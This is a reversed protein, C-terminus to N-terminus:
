TPVSTWALVDYERCSKGTDVAGGCGPLPVKRTAEILATFRNAVDTGTGTELTVQRLEKAGPDAVHQVDSCHRPTRTWTWGLEALAKADATQAWPGDLGACGRILGAVASPHLTRTVIGTLTETSLHAWAYGDPFTFATPAYRHGGTHSTRWVRAPSREEIELAQVLRTGESGCCRDRQGHTCVLVDLVEDQASAEPMPLQMARSVAEGLEDQAASLETRRFGDFLGDGRRYLIIRRAEKDSDKRPVLGQIRAGAPLSERMGALLPHQSIDHPWPLPLEILVFAQQADVSGVPAMELARFAPACALGSRQSGAAERSREQQEM